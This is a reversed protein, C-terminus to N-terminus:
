PADCGSLFAGLSRPVGAGQIASLISHNLLTTGARAPTFGRPRCDAGDQARDDGRSRPHVREGHRRTAPSLRDDGRSRPHVRSVPPSRANRLGTTGARAPTFGHARIGVRGALRTTGARAPTFGNAAAHGDRERHTTGARAPTFGDGRLAAIIPVAYDDGRSRPHVRVSRSSQAPTFGLCPYRSCHCSTLRGRALPPSGTPVLRRVAHEDTTGARAPTFGMSLPAVTRSCRTTGARAPTFGRRRM